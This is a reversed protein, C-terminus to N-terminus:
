ISSGSIIRLVVELEKLLGFLNVETKDLKFKLSNAKMWPGLELLYPSLSEMANGLDPSCLFCRFTKLVSFPNHFMGEYPSLLGM